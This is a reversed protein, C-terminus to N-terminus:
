DTVALAQGKEIREQIDKVLRRESSSYLTTVTGTRGARGARGARHVYESHSRPPDFMVVHEVMPADLGRAALDTCVLVKSEGQLFSKWITLRDRHQIQSHLREAKIGFESLRHHVWTVSELGDCFILTPSKFGKKALEKLESLKGITGVVDIFRHNLNALARHLTPTTAAAIHGFPFYQRIAQVLHQMKTACVFMVQLPTFTRQPAQGQAEAEASAVIAKRREILPRLVTTIEALFQEEFLADAEDLVLYKVDALSVYKNQLLELLRQPTAVMVDLPKEMASKQRSIRDGGMVCFTSFKVAKGLRKSVNAVQMALLRHPVLILARPRGPRVFDGQADSKKIGEVIPLLYSLTKGSGTEAAIGTDHGALVQPLARSQIRTPTTIEQEALAAILAPSLGLSEFTKKNEMEPGNSPAAPDAPFTTVIRNRRAHANSEDNLLASYAKALGEAGQKQHIEKLRQKEQGLMTRRRAGLSKNQKALQHRKVVRMQEALPLHQIDEPLIVGGRPSRPTQTSRVTRIPAEAEDQDEEDRIAGLRRHRSSTFPTPADNDPSTPPSHAARKAPAAEEADGVILDTDRVRLSPTRAQRTERASSMEDRAALDAHRTQRGPESRPLRRGRAPQDRHRADSTRGREHHDAASRRPPGDTRDQGENQTPRSRLRTAANSRPALAVAGGGVTVSFHSGLMAVASSAFGRRAVRGVHAEGPQRTSGDSASMGALGAVVVVGSAVAAYSSSSTSYACSASALSTLTRRTLTLM